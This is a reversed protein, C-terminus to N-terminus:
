SHFNGYRTAPGGWRALGVISSEHVIHRADATTADDDVCLDFNLGLQATEDNRDNFTSRQVNVDILWAHWLTEVARDYKGHCQHYSSLLENLAIVLLLSSNLHLGNDNFVNNCECSM